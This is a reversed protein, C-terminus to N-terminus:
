IFCLTKWEAYKIYPKKNYNKDNVNYPRKKIIYKRHSSQVQSLSYSYPM